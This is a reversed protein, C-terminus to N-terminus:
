QKAAQNGRSNYETEAIGLQPVETVLSGDAPNTVKFMSGDAASVWEGDIYARDRLLAPNNLELTTKLTDLM